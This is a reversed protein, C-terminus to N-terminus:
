RGAAGHTCNGAHQGTSLKSLCAMLKRYPANSAAGGEVNIAVSSGGGALRRHGTIYRRCPEASASGHKFGSLM